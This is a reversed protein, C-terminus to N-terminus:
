LAQTVQMARMLLFLLLGLLTCLPQILLCSDPM